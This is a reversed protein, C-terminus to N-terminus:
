RLRDKVSSNLEEDLLEDFIHKLGRKHKDSMVLDALKPVPRIKTPFDFLKDDFTTFSVATTSFATHNTGDSTTVDLELPIGTLRPNKIYYLGNLFTQIPKTLKINASSLYAIHTVYLKKSTQFMVPDNFNWFRKGGSCELEWCPLQLKSNFSSSPKGTLEAAPCIFDMPEALWQAPTNFLGRHDDPRYIAVKWDPARTVVILEDKKVVFRAGSDSLYM